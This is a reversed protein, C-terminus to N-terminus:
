QSINNCIKCNKLFMKNKPNIKTRNPYKLPKGQELIASLELFKCFWSLAFNTLLVEISGWKLIM